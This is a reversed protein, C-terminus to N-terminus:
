ENKGEMLNIPLKIICELGGPINKFVIQGKHNDIISKVISLGLGTGFSKTTFFPETIKKLKDNDIGGSNDRIRVVVFNDDKKVSVDIKVEGGTNAEVSNKFLNLFVQQLQEKNAFLVYEGKDISVSFKVNKAFASVMEISDDIVDSIDVRTLNVVDRFKSYRNIDMVLNYLRELQSKILKYYKEAKEESELYRGLKDFLGLIGVLANKMEHAIVMATKGLNYVRDEKEVRRDGDSNLVQELNESYKKYLLKDLACGFADVFPMVDSIECVPYVLMFGVVENRSKFPILLASKKFGFGDFMAKLKYFPLDERKIEKISGDIFLKVFSRIIDNCSSGFSRVNKNFETSFLLDANYFEFDEKVFFEVDEKNLGIKVDYCKKRRSYKFFVLKEIDCKYLFFPLGRLYLGLLDNQRNVIGLFRDLSLDSKKM